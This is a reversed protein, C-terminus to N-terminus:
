RQTRQTETTANRSFVLNILADLGLWRGSPIFALAFLALVEIVTKSVYVYRAEQLPPEPWGPLSPMALVFSLLMVASLFSSLRTFLGVLLLGGLVTMGWKVLFDSVELRGWDQPPLPVPEPVAPMAKQESNLVDALKEKLRVFQGDLSRKLGGRWKNVDARADKWRKQVEPQNSPLEAELEAARAELRDLEALREPITMVVKLDPPYPSIKTVEEKGAKLWTATDQEAQRLKDKAKEYQEADLGYRATFHKLYAQWEADLRPSVDGDATPTLRERVRDGALERFTPGLPGYAERLYGEGTWAPAIVKDLGLVLLHWGLALRLAVLAFRAPSNYTEAVAGRRLLVSLALLLITLGAFVLLLLGHDLENTM